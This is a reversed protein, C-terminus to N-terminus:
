KYVGQRHEIAVVEVTSTKTDFTYVIRYDGLRYKYFGKLEGHLKVGAVPNLKLIDYARIARQQISIPLRLFRKDANKDVILHKAPM